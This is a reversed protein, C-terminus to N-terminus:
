LTCINKHKVIKKKDDSENSEGLENIIEIGQSGRITEAYARSKKRKKKKISLRNPYRCGKSVRRIFSLTYVCRTSLSFCFHFEYPPPDVRFTFMRPYM